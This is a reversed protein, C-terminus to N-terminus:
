ELPMSIEFILLRMLKWARIRDFELQFHRWNIKCGYSRKFNAFEMKANGDMAM